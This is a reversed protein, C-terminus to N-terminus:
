NKQTGASDMIARYKLCISDYQLLLREQLEEINEPFGERTCQEMEFALDGLERAGISYANNKFGHIRICYNKFDKEELWENLEERIPLETFDQLLEYYFDKDGSCTTMGMEFNIEPIRDRIDDANWKKKQEVIREEPLFHRIIQFLEESVIPKSLFDDFGEEIYKERDGLIANATLMIVPTGKGLGRERMTHLTEIGDMGPMMHDLFILDFDQLQLLELCRGGSEAESVRIQTEKLLNRFVKLNMQSDDVVLIQAQPATFETQYVVRESAELLKKRFDGLEKSDTTKQVLEFSFESGKEYESQVQLESGMLKLLQRVINLGLGTGEVDRNRTTDFRSFSDGIKELDERRMGIGTDLVSFQLVADSAEVRCRLKLTVSGQETYKVANSLLNLLVQRIRKDDGFYGSPISPDIDFFLQLGKERAKVSIMNYLDNLLSGMNYEACVIEMKGSEIKSSDLIENIIGLLETAAHKVDFAYERINEERSERIIMENMGMVANVPTRIEHSMSALFQSKARNAREAEEKAQELATTLRAREVSGSVINFLSSCVAVFALYILCRPIVFYLMLLPVPNSNIESVIFSGESVYTSMSGTTLLVMNADCLGFYYGGYVVIITSIITLISVYRIVPKSSYLVAYLIPLLMVLVVHYTLFVGSVTFMSIICFLIFYKLKTNSLSVFRTVIYVGFYIFASPIFANWMLQQDIVFVGVLNLVYAATYVLMTVAFCELVYNNAIYEKDQLYISIEDNKKAEEM